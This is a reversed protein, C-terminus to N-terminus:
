EVRGMMEELGIALVDNKRIQVFHLTLNFYGGLGSM